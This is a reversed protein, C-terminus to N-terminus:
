EEDTIINFEEDISFKKSVKKVPKAVAKEKEKVSYSHHQNHERLASDIEQRFMPVKLTIEKDAYSVSGIEERDIFIKGTPMVAVRRTIAYPKHRTAFEFYAQKMTYHNLVGLDVKTPTLSGDAEAVLIATNDKHCGRYYQRNPVRYLFHAGNPTNFWGKKPLIYSVEPGDSARLIFQFPETGGDPKLRVGVVKNSNVTDIRHITEGADACLSGDSMLVPVGTFKIFTGHFYKEIDGSNESCFKM